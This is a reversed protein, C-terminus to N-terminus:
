PSKFIRDTAQNVKRLINVVDKQNAAARGTVEYMFVGGFGTESLAERFSRWDITGEFPVLHPDSEGNNDHVHLSILRDGMLRVCDALNEGNAHAHGTDLCLGLRDDGLKDALRVVDECLGCVCFDPLNELAIKIDIGSCYDLIERLSKEAQRTKYERDEASTEAGPHIVVIGSGLIGAADIAAKMSGVADKRHGEDAASIDCFVNNEVDVGFNAHVSSATMSLSRLEDAMGAVYDKDHYNFIHEQFLIEVHDIGNDKLTELERRSLQGPQVWEFVVTGIGTKM